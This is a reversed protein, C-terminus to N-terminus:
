DKLDSHIGKFITWLVLLFIMMKFATLWSIDQVLYLYNLSTAFFNQIKWPWIVAILNPVALFIGSSYLLIGLIGGGIFLVAQPDTVLSSSKSNSVLPLHSNPLAKEESLGRAGPLGRGRKFLGIIHTFLGWNKM